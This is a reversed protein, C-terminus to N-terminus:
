VHTKRDTFSCDAQKSGGFGRVITKAGWEFRLCARYHVDYSSLATVPVKAVDAATRYVHLESGASLYWNGVKGAWEVNPQVSAPPTKLCAHDASVASAAPVFSSVLAVALAVYLFAVSTKM